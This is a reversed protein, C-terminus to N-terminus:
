KSCPCPPSTGRAKDFQSCNDTLQVNWRSLAATGHELQLAAPFYRWPEVKFPMVEIEAEHLCDMLSILKMLVIDCQCLQKIKDDAVSLPQQM